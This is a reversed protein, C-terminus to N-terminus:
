AVSSGGVTISSIKVTPMGVGVPVLQGAKGCTYHRNAFCSDNGVAVVRTMAEPGNGVITAGRLPATIKGNEILYGEAIMFVFDGKSIEVQGGAFSKAYIGRKVSAIIEEFTSSGNPMYTNCMRPQPLVRFSARRGSGTSGVGMLTGNLYDQMYGRLIGNEVLVNHSGPNGEDDVSLSGREEPLNGDDYITVLESAVREGVRGSYLSIGRRNFDGELGHGVAEHLLVGGGGAGVVIESEGAPAERAELNISAIQAAEQAISEPTRRTFFAVSTRRGDGVYGHARVDKDKAVTQVGLTVLPRHDHVLKGLSNAIWVDQLEDTVFANVAVIRHDVARAAVDARELLDVYISSNVPAAPSAGYATAVDQGALERVTSGGSADNAILAAVKAARELAPLSLDDSYGYGSSEGVIVRIGVGQTVSLGSEHIKGDQLRFSTLTRRECFIDAYSGGRLLAVQLLRQLTQSDLIGAGNSELTNTM